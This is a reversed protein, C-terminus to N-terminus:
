CRSCASESNFTSCQESAPLLQSQEDPKPEQSPCEKSEAPEPDPKPAPKPTPKRESKKEKRVTKAPTTYLEEFTMPKMPSIRPADEVELMSKYRRISAPKATFSSRSPDQNERGLALSSTRKGPQPHQGSTETSTLTTLISNDLQISRTRAKVHNVFDFTM